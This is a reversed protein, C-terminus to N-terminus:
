ELQKLSSHKIWGSFRSPYIINSWDGDRRSIILIGAPVEGQQSFISSPGAQLVDTKLVVAWPWSSVWWSFLLPLAVLLVLTLMKWLQRTRRLLMLGAILILLSLSVLLNGAVLASGKVLYDMGNLPQEWRDIELKGEVLKLNNVLQQNAYGEREAQLLHYRALPWENIEGYITGLNYHKLGSPLAHGEQLLTQLAKDYEKQHYYREFTKLVHDITTDELIHPINDGGV